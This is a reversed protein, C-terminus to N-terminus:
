GAQALAVALARLRAEDKVGPALEVGSNVDVFRAGSAALAPSINEASLGGALIWRTAPHAAQLAAFEAWDGTRGSGGYGSAHFTDVLVAAALAAWEPVFPTGPARRPALWLRDRGTRAAWSRVRAPDLAADFHIQFQDFGAAQAAALAADEPAVLVAVRRPGSPLTSALAAYDALPLHRPSAPHLIFGLYDAGLAAALAADAARRLGCVKLTRSAIM